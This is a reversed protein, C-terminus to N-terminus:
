GAGARSSLLGQSGQDGDQEGERAGDSGARGHHPAVARDPGGRGPRQRLPQARQADVAGQRGRHALLGGEGQAAFVRHELDALGGSGHQQAARLASHVHGISEEAVRRGASGRTALRLRDVLHAIKEDVLHAAPHRREAGALVRGQGLLLEVVREKKGRQLEGAVRLRGARHHLAPPQLAAATALRVARDASRRRRQEVASDHAGAGLAGAELALGGVDLGVVHGGAQVVVLRQRLSARGGRHRRCGAARHGHAHVQARQDAFRDGGRGGGAEDFRLRPIRGRQGGRRAARLRCGIQAGPERLVRAPDAEEDAADIEIARAIGLHNCLAEGKRHERRGIRAQGAAGGRQEARQLPGGEVVLRHGGDEPAAVQAGIAGALQLAFPHRRLKSGRHAGQLGAQSVQCGVLDRVVDAGRSGEVEVVVVHEM